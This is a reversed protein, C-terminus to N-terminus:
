KSNNQLLEQSTLQFDAVAWHGAVLSLRCTIHQRARRESLQGTTPDVARRTQDATVLATAVGASFATVEVAVVDTTLTRQQGVATPDVQSSAFEEYASGTTLGLLGDRYAAPERFDFTGYAQVFRAAVKEADAMVGEHGRLRNAGQCGSVVGFALLLAGLGGLVAITGRRGIM